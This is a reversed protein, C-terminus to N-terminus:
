GMFFGIKNFFAPRVHPLKQFTGQALLFFYNLCSNIEEYDHSGKGALGRRAAKESLLCTELDLVKPFKRRLKSEFTWIKTPFLWIPHM